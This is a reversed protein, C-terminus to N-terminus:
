INKGVKGRRNDILALLALVVVPIVTVIVGVVWLGTGFIYATKVDKIFFIIALGVIGASVPAIIKSVDRNLLHNIAGKTGLLLLSLKMVCSTIWTLINLWDIKGVDSSIFNYGSLRQFANPVNSTLEGWQSYFTANIFVVVALIAVAGGFIYGYRRKQRDRVDIFLLPLYDGFWLANKHASFLVSVDNDMVPLLNTYDIQANNFAVSVLVNLLLVWVMVEAMRGIAGAGKYSLYAIAVILPVIIQLREAEDFFSQLLYAVVEEFGVVAQLLFYIALVVAICRSIVKSAVSGYGLVGVRTKIFMILCLLIVDILMAVGITLWMDQGAEHAIFSPLMAVKFAPVAFAYLFFVQRSSM